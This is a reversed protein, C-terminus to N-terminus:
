WTMEVQEAIPAYGRREKANKVRLAKTEACDADQFYELRQQGAQGVRGWERVVFYDGFLTQGTAIQYFRKQRKVHNIKKLTWRM